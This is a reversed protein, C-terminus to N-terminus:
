GPPWYFSRDGILHFHLHFVSQGANEGNNTIVRFSKGELGVKKVIEPMKVMLHGAIDKDEPKLDAVNQIHKKPIILVHIPGVPNIDNFAYIKDDEYVKDSPIEGKIIKCFLCNDSM